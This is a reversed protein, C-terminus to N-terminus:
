KRKFGARTSALFSYSSTGVTFKLVTIAENLINGASLMECINITCDSNEAPSQLEIKACLEIPTEMALDEIQKITKIDTMVAM